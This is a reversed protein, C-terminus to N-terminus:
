DKECVQGAAILHVKVDEADWGNEFCHQAWVALTTSVREIKAVLMRQKSREHFDAKVKEARVSTMIDGKPAAYM